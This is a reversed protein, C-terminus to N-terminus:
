DKDGSPAISPTAKPEGEGINTPALSFLLMHDRKFTTGFVAKYIGGLSLSGSDLYRSLPHIVV